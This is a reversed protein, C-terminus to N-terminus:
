RAQRPSVASVLRVSEPTRRGYTTAFAYFYWRLYAPVWRLVRFRSQGKGREFWAAPIEAIPWRLRHCKVLLEISYTGGLSSEIHIRDLVDRSFLRFGNTADHTPVIAFYYLTFAATRVLVAKLWPCGHMQGGKMFRSPAVIKKGQQFEHFLTDIIGANHVDDAPFVVVAPATSADFGTLVASHIGRGRNKVLVIEFPREYTRLAELTNDDHDDYCILVRFPTRVSRRASELVDIINDAENYVPILIDLQVV